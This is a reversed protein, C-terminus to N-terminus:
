GVGNVELGYIQKMAPDYKASFYCAGGDFVSVWEQDLNRGDHSCFANVYVFTRGLLTTRGQYQFTYEDWKPLRGRNRAAPPLAPQLATELEALTAPTPDWSGGKVHIWHAADFASASAGLMLLVLIVLRRM